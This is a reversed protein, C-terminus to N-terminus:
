DLRSVKIHYGSQKEALAKLEKFKDFAKFKKGLFHVWTKRRYNVDICTLFYYSGGLSQIQMSGCMDNHVLELPENAKYSVGKPFNDKHQKALTYCECTGTPEQISPPGRVMSKYKLLNLSFLHLHDYRSRWLWFGDM